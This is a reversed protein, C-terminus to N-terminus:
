KLTAQLKKTLRVIKHRGNYGDESLQDMLESLIYSSEKGAFRRVDATRSLRRCLSLMRDVRQLRDSISETMAVVKVIDQLEPIRRLGPYAPNVDPSHSPGDVRRRAGHPYQGLEDINQKPTRPTMEVYPSGQADEQTWPHTPIGLKGELFSEDPHIILRIEYEGDDLPHLSVYSQLEKRKLKSNLADRREIASAYNM